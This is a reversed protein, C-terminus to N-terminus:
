PSWIAFLEFTFVSRPSMYASQIDISTIGCMILRGDDFELIVRQTSINELNLWKIDPDDFRIKYKIVNDDHITSFSTADSFRLRILPEPSSLVTAILEKSLM